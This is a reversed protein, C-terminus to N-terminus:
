YACIRFDKARERRCDLGFTPLPAGLDLDELTQTVYGSLSLWHDCLTEVIEAQPEIEDIFWRRFGIRQFDEDDWVNKQNRCLAQTPQNIDSQVPFSNRMERLSGNGVSLSDSFTLNGTHALTNRAKRIRNALLNTNLQNRLTKFKPRDRTHDVCESYVIEFTDGLVRVAAYTSYRFEVPDHYTEEMRHLWYHGEQLRDLSAHVPELPCFDKCTM